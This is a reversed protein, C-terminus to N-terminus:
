SISRYWMANSAAPRIKPQTLFHCLFVWAPVAGTCDSRDSDRDLIAKREAHEATPFIVGNM